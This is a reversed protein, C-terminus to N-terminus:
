LINKTKNDTYTIKDFWILFRYIWISLVGAMIAGPLLLVLSHRWLNQGFGLLYVTLLCIGKWFISAGLTLLVMATLDKIVLWYSLARVTLYLSMYAILFVGQPAASHLETINALILALIGGETFNRNLSCWIIVLLVMDPQLYNLPYFKFISTQLAIAIISMIIIAIPNATKLIIKIM